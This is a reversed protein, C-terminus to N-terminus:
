PAVERRKVAHALELLKSSITIGGRGAAADDIDFRVHNGILAFSIVGHASLASDTVTVVPKDKLAALMDSATATDAAGLFLMPCSIAPDLTAMRRVILPKDGMKQGAAARDLAPGFPDPGVVCITFDPQSALAADPWGIFPIFKTLYAAKVAYELNDQAQAPLLGALLVALMLRSLLRNGGRRSPMLLAM